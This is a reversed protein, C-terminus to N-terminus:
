FGLKEPKKLFGLFFRLKKFRTEVARTIFSSFVPKAMPAFNDSVCGRDIIGPYAVATHENNNTVTETTHMRGDRQRTEQIRGDTRIQREGRRARYFCTHGIQTGISANLWIGKLQCWMIM